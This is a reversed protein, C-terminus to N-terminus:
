ISRMRAEAEVGLKPYLSFADRSNHHGDRQLSFAMRPRQSEFNADRM